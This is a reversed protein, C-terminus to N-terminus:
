HRALTLLTLSLGSRSLLRSCATEAALPQKLDCGSFAFDLPGTFFAAPLLPSGAGNGTSAASPM